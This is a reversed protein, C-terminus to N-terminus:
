EWPWDIWLYGIIIMTMYFLATMAQFAQNQTFGYWMVAQYIGYSTLVIAIIHPLYYVFLVPVFLSRIIEDKLRTTERVLMTIWGPGGSGPM